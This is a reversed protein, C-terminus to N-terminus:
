DQDRCSGTLHGDAVLTRERLTFPPPIREVPRSLARRRIFLRAVSSISPRKHPGGGCCQTHLICPTHKFESSKMWLWLFEHSDAM